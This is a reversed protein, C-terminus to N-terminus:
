SGWTDAAPTGLLSPVRIMLVIGSTSEVVMALAMVEEITPSAATPPGLVVVPLPSLLSSSTM